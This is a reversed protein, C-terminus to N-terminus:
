VFTFISGFLQTLAEGTNILGIEERDRKDKEREYEIQALHQDM